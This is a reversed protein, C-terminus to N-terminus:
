AGGPGTLHFYDSRGTLMLALGDIAAVVTSSSFYLPGSIEMRAQERAITERCGGMAALLRERDVFRDSRRNLRRPMSM